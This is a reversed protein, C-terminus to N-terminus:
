EWEEPYEGGVDTSLQMFVDEETFYVIRMKVSEYADKSHKKMKEKNVVM